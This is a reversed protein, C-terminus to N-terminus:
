YCAAEQELPDLQEDPLRTKSDPARRAILHYVDLYRQIMRQCSFRRGAVDKCDKPNISASLRIAEAMGQVDNVLFGTKGSTLLDPLAGARFAIVATGCGLAEMTVLSSTEAVLSPVLVCRAASILRRKRKAGVPGIFRRRGDLRPVIEQEFYRQHAEYPFVEGALLLSVGARKAADIALHFGKEPCIRGLCIAFQRKAHKSALMDDPVGNEIEPLLRASAPCARHQSASVCHYYTQPRKLGLAETPYWHPPLHLTVLLPVGAPPVYEHFDVGHMHVLDVAYSELVQRITARHIEAARGRNLLPATWRPTPLLTGKTVSGECAVVLSRHGLAHLGNDLQSLVQEAGGVADPGVPAMPFAVNLVTLSM